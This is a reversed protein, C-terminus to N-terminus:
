NTHMAKLATDVLAAPILHYCPVRASGAKCNCRGYRAGEYEAFRVTSRHQQPTVDTYARGTQPKVHCKIRNATAIANKLNMTMM